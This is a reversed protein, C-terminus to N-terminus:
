LWSDLLLCIPNALDRIACSLHVLVENGAVTGRFYIGWLDVDFDHYVRSTKTFSTLFSLELLIEFYTILDCEASILRNACYPFMQGSLPIFVGIQVSPVILFLFYFYFLFSFHSMTQKSHLSLSTEWRWLKKRFQLKWPWQLDNMALGASCGTFDHYTELCLNGPPQKAWLIVLSFVSYDGSLEVEPCHSLCLM